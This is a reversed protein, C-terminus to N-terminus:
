WVTANTTGSKNSYAEIAIIQLNYSGFSGLHAKWFTIHNNLTVAHNAGTSTGGWNSLYQWFTTTGQISPQNVQQHKYVNYSHGDSSVTGYSSGTAVSGKECVYYEILPNTTWGYVSFNNYSGSISGANYNVTRTAGPNWGKGAVVDGVNSYTDQWNGAYTGAQPFTLSSSGGSWYNQWWFGHDTGTSAQLAVSSGVILGAVLLGQPLVRRLASTVFSVQKM